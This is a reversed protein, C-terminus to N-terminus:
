RSGLLLAACRQVRALWFMCFRMNFCMVPSPTPQYPQALECAVCLAWAHLGFMCFLTDGLVEGTITYDPPPQELQASLKDSMLQDHIALAAAGRAVDPRWWLLKYMLPRLPNLSNIHFEQLVAAFIELYQSKSCCILCLPASMIAASLLCSTSSCSDPM